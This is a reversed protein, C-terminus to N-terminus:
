DLRPPDPKKNVRRDLIEKPAYRDFLQHGAGFGRLTAGFDLDSSVDGVGAMDGLCFGHWFCRRHTSAYQGALPKLSIVLPKCAAGSISTKAGVRELRAVNVHL